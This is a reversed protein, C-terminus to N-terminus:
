AHERDADPLLLRAIEVAEAVTHIIQHFGTDTHRVEISSGDDHYLYVLIESRYPGYRGILLRLTRYMSVSPFLAGLREDAHVAAAIERIMYQDPDTLIAQWRAEVRQRDEDPMGPLRHEGGSPGPTAATMFRHV